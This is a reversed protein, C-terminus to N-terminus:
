VLGFLFAIPLAIAATCLYVAALTFLPFGIFVLLGGFLKHHFMFREMSGDIHREFCSVRKILTYM